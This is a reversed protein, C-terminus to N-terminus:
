AVSEVLKEDWWLWRYECPSAVLGARVPNEPIYLVKKRL